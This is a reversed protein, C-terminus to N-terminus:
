VVCWESHNQEGEGIQRRAAMAIPLCLCLCMCYWVHLRKVHPQQRALKHVGSYRLDVEDWYPVTGCEVNVSPLTLADIMTVMWSRLGKVSM